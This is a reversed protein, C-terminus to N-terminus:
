PEVVDLLWRHVLTADEATLVLGTSRKEATPCPTADEATLLAPDADYATLVPRNLAPRRRNTRVALEVAADRAAAAEGEKLTRDPARFRLAIPWRSRARASRTAPTSTSCGSRSSCTARARACRRRSTPRRSRPTWSSRSTRRPSRTRRSRRAASSRRGRAALLADLDIEAAASRPPLGYAACVKPHLEGAHGIRTSASGSRPAAARTGRPSRPRRSTSPSGSRPRASRPGGDIADAWSARRGAGWWGDLERHGALAIALHM